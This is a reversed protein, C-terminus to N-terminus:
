VNNQAYKYGKKKNKNPEPQEEHQHKEESSANLFEQIKNWKYKRDYGTGRKEFYYPYRRTYTSLTGKEWKTKELIFQVSVFEDTNEPAPLPNKLLGDIIRNLEVAYHELGSKKLCQILNEFCRVIWEKRFNSNQHMQQYFKYQTQEFFTKYGFDAGAFFFYNRFEVNNFYTMKDFQRYNFVAQNEFVANSFNLSHQYSPREITKIANGRFLFASETDGLSHISKFSANRYFKANDFNTTGSFICNDFSVNNDFTTNEFTTEGGEFLCNIFSVQNRITTNNWKLNSFRCNRFTFSLNPHHNVYDRLQQSQDGGFFKEDIIDGCTHINKVTQNINELETLTPM